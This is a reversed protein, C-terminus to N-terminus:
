INKNESEPMCMAAPASRGKQRLNVVIPGSFPIQIQPGRDSGTGGAIYVSGIDLQQSASQDTELQLLNTTKCNNFHSDRWCPTLTLTHQVASSIGRFAMCFPSIDLLFRVCGVSRIRLTRPPPLFNSYMQPASQNATQSKTGQQRLKHCIASIECYNTEGAKTRNKVHKGEAHTHALTHKDNRM